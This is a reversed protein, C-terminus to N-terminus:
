RPVVRWDPAWETSRTWIPFCFLYRSDKLSAFGPRSVLEGARVFTASRIEDRRAGWSPAVGGKLVGPRPNSKERCLRVPPLEGAAACEIFRLRAAPEVSPQNPPGEQVFNSGVKLALSASRRLSPWGAAEGQETPLGGAAKEM